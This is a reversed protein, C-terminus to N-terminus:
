ELAQMIMTDLRLESYFRSFYYFDKISRCLRLDQLNKSVRVSIETM